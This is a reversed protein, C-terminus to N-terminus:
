DEVEELDEKEVVEEELDEKTVKITQAHHIINHYRAINHSCM